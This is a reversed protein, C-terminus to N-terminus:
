DLSYSRTMTSQFDKTLDLVCAAKFAQFCIRRDQQPTHVPDSRSGEVALLVLRGIIEHTCM